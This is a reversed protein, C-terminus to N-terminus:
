DDEWDDDDDDTVQPDDIEHDLVWESIVDQAAAKIAEKLLAANKRLFAEANERKMLSNGAVVQVDAPDIEIKM